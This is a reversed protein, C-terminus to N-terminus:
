RSPRAGTTAAPTTAWCRSAAIATLFRQIPELSVSRRKVKGPDASYALITGAGDLLYIEISPNIVMYYHFTEELAAQDLRGQQVLNRDAVLNEALDRNFRQNVEQLYHRTASVTLVAFLIGVM